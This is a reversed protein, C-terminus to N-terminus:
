INPKNKLFVDVQQIVKEPHIKKIEDIPTNELDGMQHNRIKNETEDPYIAFFHRAWSAPYPAFRGYHLGSFLGIVPCGVAAALHVSGTDVSILFCAHHLLTLFEPLSTQGTLDTVPIKLLSKVLEADARDGPGGCLVPVLRSNQIIHRIVRAFYDPPWKKAKIGSGPFVIFYTEPLSFASIDERAKIDFRLPHVIVSLIKEVFIVNRDGDFMNEPGPDILKDYIEERDFMKREVFGTKRNAMATKRGAASIDAIADDLRYNGSYVLNILDTAGLERIKRLICFRYKLNRRFKWKDIWIMDDATDQDYRNYIQRFISNGIFSIRYGRFMESERFYPLVNRVLMYDGVEDTKIIVLHKIGPKAPFARVIFYIIKYIVLVVAEKM